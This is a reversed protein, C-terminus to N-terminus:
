IVMSLLGMRSAWQHLDKLARTVMAKRREERKRIGPYPPLLGFNANMPQFAGQTTSTIYTLLGGLMTTPPPVALPEGSLLRVANVGALLGTAASELYGEVGTIQGAFFLTARRKSCLTKELVHPAHLYTNRHLSGYRLFVAKELGPIMRFIRQQEPYTLKTQCGVLNYAEGQLDERRLQVVAYLDKTGKEGTLGVPKFPGFALTERGRRAIEELPLCGEFYPTEQEFDHWPVVTATLLADVFQYYQDQTLPCNLYDAEGKDYRSAFFTKSYDISSGEVIPSIADFFYLREEGTFQGIAEALPTSTLPGTAVITVGEEPLSRCEERVLHINPHHEVAATLEQAFRERDVALAAGAPVRTKEAIQMVFSGLHRLEAKLLGSATHLIDSKLSNSCVLEGLLGTQHAPTMEKPRMEYLLVEVGREAAQWAAESGALGGGIITVRQKM